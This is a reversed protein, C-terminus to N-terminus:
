RTSHPVTLKFSALFVCPRYTSPSNPTRHEHSHPFEPKRWWLQVNAGSRWPHSSTSSSNFLAVEDHSARPSKLSREYRDGWRGWAGVLGNHDTCSCHRMASPSDFSDPDLLRLHELKVGDVEANLNSFTSWAAWSSWSPRRASGVCIYCRHCRGRCAARSGVM